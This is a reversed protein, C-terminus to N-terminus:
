CTTSAAGPPGPEFPPQSDSQRAAEVDFRKTRVRFWREFRV